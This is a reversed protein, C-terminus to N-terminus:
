KILDHLHYSKYTQPTTGYLTRFDCIFYRSDISEATLENTPDSWRYSSWIYPEIQIRSKCETETWKRLSSYAIKTSACNPHRIGEVKRFGPFPNNTTGPQTTAAYMPLFHKSMDYMSNSTRVEYDPDSFRSRVYLNAEGNYDRVDITANMPFASSLFISNEDHLTSDIRPYPIHFSDIETTEIHMGTTLPYFMSSPGTSWPTYLVVPSASTTQITASEKYDPDPPQTRIKKGLLALLADPEPVNPLKVPLKPEATCYYSCRYNLATYFQSLLATKTDKENKLDVKMLHYTPPQLTDYYHNMINTGSVSEYIAGLPKCNAFIQLYQASMINIFTHLTPILEPEASLIISYASVTNYDQKAPYQPLAFHQFVAKRQKQDAVTINLLRRLKKTLYNDVINNEYAGGIINAVTIPGEAAPRQYVPYRLWELWIENTTAHAGKIAIIDHLALFMHIPFFRGLDHYFSFSAFSYVFCLNKRQPDFTPFIGELIIKIFPPTSMWSSLNLYQLNLTEQSFIKAHFSMTERVSYVDALAAFCNIQHLFSALLSAPTIAPIKRQKQTEFIKISHDILQYLIPRFDPQCDITAHIGPDETIDDSLRMEKFLDIVPPTSEQPNVEPSTDLTRNKEADPPLETQVAPETM